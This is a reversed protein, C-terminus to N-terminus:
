SATLQAAFRGLVVPWGTEYGGRAASARAGLREWGRHELRVITGGSSASFTIEVETSVTRTRSPNWALVLRRPPEWALVSGWGVERGDSWTEIVRGGIGAEIRAGVAKVALEEDAAISHTEFPWWAGLEATFLEFSREPSAAVLVSAIVPAPEVATPGIRTAQSM